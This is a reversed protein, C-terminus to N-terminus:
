IAPLATSFSLRTPAPILPASLLAMLDAAPRSKKSSFLGLSFCSGCGRFSAFYDVKKGHYCIFNLEALSLQKLGNSIHPFAALLALPKSLGPFESSTKCYFSFYSRISTSSLHPISPHSPLSDVLSICSCWSLRVLVVHRSGLSHCGFSPAPFLGDIPLLYSLFTVKTMRHHSEM